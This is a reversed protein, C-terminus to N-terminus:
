KDIFKKIKKKAHTLTATFLLASCLVVFVTCQVNMIVNESRLLLNLVCSVLIGLGSDSGVHWYGLFCVFDSGIPREGDKRM